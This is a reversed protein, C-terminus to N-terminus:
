KLWNKDFPPDWQSESVDPGPCGGLDGQRSGRLHTIVLRQVLNMNPLNAHFSVNDLVKDKVEWFGYDKPTVCIIEEKRVFNSQAGLYPVTGDGTRVRKAPTKSKFEDVEDEVYFRTKGAERGITMDVRTEAGVGAICLWRKSGPLRKSTIEEMADRQGAAQNLMAGLLEVPTVPPAKPLRNQDIFVGLTELITEQWNSAKFLALKDNVGNIAGDFSPLLHYLSPTVRAAERERSGGSSLSSNGTTTIAVSELSGRFPSAITAIKDVRQVLQLDGTAMFGGIILGGMSHGVLNVKGTVRNYGDNNYHPLLSTREIVEQVFAVLQAQTSELPQRWDYAFPFVPVPQDPQPTLNYRLEEIIESYFLSFVQDRVVRAPERAEYKVNYPHLTIREFSKTVARMVSWVTEPDVPYEDRLASGKIGPLFIVPSPYQPM